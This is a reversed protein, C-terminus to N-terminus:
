SGSSYSRRTRLQEGPRWKISAAQQPDVYDMKRELFNGYILTIICRANM